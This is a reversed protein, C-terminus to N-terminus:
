YFKKAQSTKNPFFGQGIKNKNVSYFMKLSERMICQSIENKNQMAMRHLAFLTKFIDICQMWKQKNKLVKILSYM